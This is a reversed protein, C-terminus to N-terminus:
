LWRISTFVCNDFPAPNPNWVQIQETQDMTTERLSHLEEEAARQQQQQQQQQRRQQEQQQHSSKEQSSQSLKAQCKALAHRETALQEELARCQQLAERLAASVGSSSAESPVDTGREGPGEVEQGDVARMRATAEELQQQLAGILDDKRQLIKL